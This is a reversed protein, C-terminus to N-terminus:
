FLGEALRLAVALNRRDDEESKKPTEMIMPIRRLAPHALLRRFGALGIQGEGIHDHRDVHTGCPSKADNLHILYLRDWGIFRSFADLTELLGHETALDYGAGWAHATDFCVGIRNPHDMQNLIAALQEFRFGIETGQGATNELLIRPSDACNRCARSVASAVRLCAADESSTRRHGVHLVLHEAGLLRSREMETVLSIVSREYLDEEPSALNPLYPLHIVLPTIDADTLFQRFSRAVGPDIAKPSAWGRPNRSFIQLTRCGLDSARRAAQLFGGAISCHFGFRIM